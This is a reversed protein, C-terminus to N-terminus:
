PTQIEARLRGRVCCIPANQQMLGAQAPLLSGLSPVSTVETRHPRRLYGLGPSLVSLHARDTPGVCTVSVQSRSLCTCETRPARAPLQSRPIPCIPTGQGHPRRLNRLGPSLVSLHARNHPRRLYGLGPSPISPHLRDTPCACTVSDRAASGGCAPAEGARRLQPSHGPKGHHGWFM